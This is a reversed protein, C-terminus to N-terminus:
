GTRVAWLVFRRNTIKVASPFDSMAIKRGDSPAQYSIRCSLRNATVPACNPNPVSTIVGPRNRRRRCSLCQGHVARRVPISTCRWCNPRRPRNRRYEPERVVYGAGPSKSPSPLASTETKRGDFPVQYRCFLESPDNKANGTRFSRHYALAFPTYTNLSARMRGDTGLPM